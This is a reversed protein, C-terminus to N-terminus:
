FLLFDLAVQNAQQHIQERVGNEICIPADRRVGFESCTSVFSIHIADPITVFRQDPFLNKFQATYIEGSRDRRKKALVFLTPAISGEGKRFSQAFAPDLAIVAKIRKDRYSREIEDASLKQFDYHLLEACHEDDFEKPRPVCFPIPNQFKEKALRGGALLLVTTGGASHGVAVMREKDIHHRLPHQDLLFTLFSSLQIARKWVQVVGEVTNDDRTNGPHNIAAAMWGQRVFYDAMWDLRDFSGGSGHSLLLLPLHKPHSIIAADKAGQQTRFLRATPIPSEATRADIPYWIRGPYPQRLDQYGIHYRDAALLRASLGLLILFFVVRKIKWMAKNEGIGGEKAGSKYRMQLKLILGGDGM